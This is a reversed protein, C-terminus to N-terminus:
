RANEKAKARTLERFSHDSKVGHTCAFRGEGIAERAANLQEENEYTNCSFTTRPFLKIGSKMAVAGVWRDSMGQEHLLAGEQFVKRWTKPTAYYPFHPFARATYGPQEGCEFLAGCSIENDKLHRDFFEPWILCDYEMILVPDPSCAALGALALMRWIADEGHHQKAGLKIMPLGLNSRVVSDTPCVLTVELGAGRFNTMNRSLISSAESHVLVYTPIPKM